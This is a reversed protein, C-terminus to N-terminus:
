GASKELEKKEEETLEMEMDGTLYQRIKTIGGLYNKTKIKNDKVRKRMVDAFNIERTEPTKIETDRLKELEKVLYERYQTLFADMAKKREIGVERIEKEDRIQAARLKHHKDQLERYAEYKEKLSTGFKTGDDFVKALQRRTEADHKRIRNKEGVYFKLRRLEAVDAEDEPTMKYGKKAKYLHNTKDLIEALEKTGDGNIYNGKDDKALYEPEQRLSQIVSDVPAHPDIDSDLDSAITSRLEKLAEQEERAVESYKIFDKIFINQEKEKVGGLVGYSAKYEKRLKIIRNVEDFQKLAPEVPEPNRNIIARNLKPVIDTRLAEPYNLDKLLKDVMISIEGTKGIRVMEDVSHIGEMVTKRIEDVRKPLNKIVKSVDKRDMKKYDSEIREFYMTEFRKRNEKTLLEKLTAEDLKKYDGIHKAIPDASGSLRGHDRAHQYSIVPDIYVHTSEVSMLEMKKIARKLENVATNFENITNELRQECRSFNQIEHPLRIGAEEAKQLAVFIREGANEADGLSLVGKLSKIFRDRTEKPIPKKEEEDKGLNILEELNKTFLEANEGMASAMMRVILTVQEKSFVNANGYDLVTFGNDDIMLNGSHLDGHHFLNGYLAEQVWKESLKVVHKKRTELTKLKEVLDNKVSMWAHANDATMVLKDPDGKGTNKFISLEAETEERLGALYRDCCEGEAKDMVFSDKKTEFNQNVRVTKVTGDKLSTTEYARGKETNASETRFDFEKKIESIHSLISGEMVGTQDTETAISTLIGTEEKMRDEADPRLLKVVVQEKTGDAYDVSCLYAEAVSAAGLTSLRKISKVEKKAGKAIEDLKAQVYEEPLHRLESKAVQIARRYGPKIAHEPIGQVLKQMVPGAGKLVAKLYVPNDKKGTGTQDIQRQAPRINRLLESLILRKSQISSKEYYGALSAQLYRGQVSDKGYASDRLRHLKKVEESENNGEGFLEKEKDKNNRIMTKDYNGLDLLPPMYVEEEEEEHIVNKEEEKEEKKKEEETGQDVFIDGTADKILEQVKKGDGEIIELIRDDVDKFLEESEKANLLTEVIEASWEKTKLDKNAEKQKSLEELLSNMEKQLGDFLLAEDETVSRTIESFIDKKDRALEAILEKHKRFIELVRVDKSLAVGLGDTVGIGSTLDSLFGLLKRGDNSWQTVVKQVQAVGDRTMTLESTQYKQMDALGTVNEETKWSGETYLNYLSVTDLKMLTDRDAGKERCIRYAILEKMELNKEKRSLDDFGEESYLDKEEDLQGFWSDALDTFTDKELLKIRTDIDEEAIPGAVPLEGNQRLIASILQKAYDTLTKTPLINLIINNTGAYDSLLRSLSERYDKLSGQDLEAYSTRAMMLAYSSINRLEKIPVRDLVRRTVGETFGAKALGFAFEDRKAELVSESDDALILTEDIRNMQDNLDEARLYQDIEHAVQRAIEDESDKSELVKKALPLKFEMPLFDVEAKATGGIGALVRDTVNKRKLREVSNLEGSERYLLEKERDNLLETKVDSKMEPIYELFELTEKELIRRDDLGHLAKAVMSRLEEMPRMMFKTEPLGTSLTLVTVASERLKELTAEDQGDEDNETFCIASKSLSVLESPSLDELAKDTTLKVAPNNKLLLLAYEKMSLLTSAPLDKEEEKSFTLADLLETKQESKLLEELEEKYKRYNDQLPKRDRYDESAQKAIQLLQDLPLANLEAKDLGGLESMGNVCIDRLDNLQILTFTTLDANNILDEEKKTFLRYQTEVKGVKNQVRSITEARGVKNQVRSITKVRGVKNQVQQAPEEQPQIQEQQEQQNQVAQNVEEAPQPAQEEKDDEKEEELSVRVGESKLEERINENKEPDSESDVSSNFSKWESLHQVEEDLDINAIRQNERRYRDKEGVPIGMSRLVSKADNLVDGTWKTTRKFVGSNFKHGFLAPIGRTLSEMVATPIVCAGKLYRRFIKRGDDVSKWNDRLSFPVNWKKKSHALWSVGNFIGAVALLPLKLAKGGLELTNAAVMTAAGLSRDVWGGIENYGMAMNYGRIKFFSGLWRLSRKFYGPSNGEAREARRRERYAYRELDIRDSWYLAKQWTPMAANVFRDAFDREVGDKKALRYSNDVTKMSDRKQKSVYFRVDDLILQEKLKEVQRYRARGRAVNLYKNHKELYSDVKSTVRDFAKGMQKREEDSLQDKVDNLAEDNWALDRASKKGFDHRKMIEERITLYEALRSKVDKMYGTDTSIATVHKLDFAM